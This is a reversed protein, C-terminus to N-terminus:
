LDHKFEHDKNVDKLIHELIIHDFQGVSKKGLVKEMVLAIVGGLERAAEQVLQEKEQRLKERADAIIVAVEQKAVAMAEKRKEESEVRTKELLLNAEHQARRITEQSTKNSKVLKEEIMKADDLSRAITEARKRLIRTLPRLAGFWLIVFVILFNLMQALLLKGSIHFTTIFTDM